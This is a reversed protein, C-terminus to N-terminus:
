RSPKVPSTLAPLYFRGKRRNCRAHTPQINDPAYTGGLVLPKIHDLELAWPSPRKHEPSILGRCIACYTERTLYYERYARVTPHTSPLRKPSPPPTM